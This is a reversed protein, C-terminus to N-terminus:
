IKCIDCPIELSKENTFQNNVLSSANMQPKWNDKKSTNVAQNRSGAPRCCRGSHCTEHWSRWGSCSQVWGGEVMSSAQSRQVGWMMQVLAYWSKEALGTGTICINTWQVTQTLDEEGHTWQNMSNGAIWRWSILQANYDRWSKTGAGCCTLVWRWQPWEMVKHRCWVATIWEDAGVEVWLVAGVVDSVMM